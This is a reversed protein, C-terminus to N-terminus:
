GTDFKGAVFHFLPSVFEPLSCAYDGCKLVARSAQYM